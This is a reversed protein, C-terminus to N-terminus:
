EPKFTIIGNVYRSMDYLYYCFEKNFITAVCYNPMSNILRHNWRNKPHETEFKEKWTKFYESDGIKASQVRPDSFLRDIDSKNLKQSVTDEAINTRSVFGDEEIYREVFIAENFEKGLEQSEKSIREFESKEECSNNKNILDKCKTVLRLLINRLKTDKRKNLWREIKNLLNYLFRKISLKINNLSDKLDFECIYVPEYQYDILKHAVEGYIGM